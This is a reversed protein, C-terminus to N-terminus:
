PCPLRVPPTDERRVDNTFWRRTPGAPCWSGSSQEAVRGTGFRERDATRGPAWAWWTCGLGAAFVGQLRRDRDCFTIANYSIVTEKGDRDRATLEYNTAYRPTAINGLIRAMLQISGPDDDVLLIDDKTM